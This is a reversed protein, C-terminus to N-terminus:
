HQWRGCVKKQGGALFNKGGLRPWQSSQLAVFFTLQVRMPSPVIRACCKLAPHHQPAKKVYTDGITIFSPASFVGQPM